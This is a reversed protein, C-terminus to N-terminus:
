KILICHTVFFFLTKKINVAIASQIIMHFLQFKRLQTEVIQKEYCKKAEVNGKVFDQNIDKRDNTKDSSEVSSPIVSLFLMKEYSASSMPCNYM